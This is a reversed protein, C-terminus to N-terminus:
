INKPNASNSSIKRQREKIRRREEKSYTCGCYDQRYLGYNRSLEVSKKFGNKKKFDAELFELGFRGSIEGGVRNIVRAKKHPSVTLTTTFLDLGESLATEATSELRLRFCIECRSGGEPASELGSILSFWRKVDYPGCILEVGLKGALWRMEELRKLYESEPHINPNYFYGAVDYSEGLFPLVYTADPACCIHVLMRRKGM